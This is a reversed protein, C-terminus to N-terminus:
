STADRQAPAVTAVLAETEGEFAQGSLTRGMQEVVEAVIAPNGAHLRILDRWLMEAAPVLTLGHRLAADAAPRDGAAALLAAARSAMSAVLARTDRAARHFALWSYRGAPVGSFAEGQALAVGRALAAAQGPGEVLAASQLEAWDVYVDASLRGPGM